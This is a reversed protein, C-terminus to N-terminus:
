AMGSPHFDKKRRVLLGFVAGAGAAVLLSAWAHERVYSETQTKARGVTEGWNEKGSTLATRGHEYKRELRERLEVFRAGAETASAKALDEVDAILKKFDTVLKAAAGNQM